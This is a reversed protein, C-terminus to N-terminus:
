IQKRIVRKLAQLLMESKFPKVLFENVGMNKLEKVKDDMSDADFMGSCLIFPLEPNIKITARRLSIGDMFPMMLDSVVADIPEKASAILAIAETGDKAQSIVYGNAQLIAATVKLIEIEDDVLLIHEGNGKLITKEKPIAEQLEADEQAAPIYIDFRTGKRKESNVHIMGRNSKVIGLVTSLGLGTGKGESKTTYFPDFINEIQKKDIGMGTDEVFLRVYAGPYAVLNLFKMPKEIVVNEAGITLVGANPMADRANIALNM